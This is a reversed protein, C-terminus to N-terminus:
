RKIIVSFLHLLFDEMSEGRFGDITLVGSPRTLRAGWLLMGCWSLRIVVAVVGEIIMVGRCHLDNFCPFIGYYCHWIFIKIKNSIQLNWLYRWWKSLAGHRSCEVERNINILAGYGSKVPYEDNLDFHWSLCYHKLDPRQRSAM